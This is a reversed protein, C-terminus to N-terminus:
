NNDKLLNVFMSAISYMGFKFINLHVEFLIVSSGDTDVNAHKVINSSNQIFRLLNILKCSVINAKVAAALKFFSTRHLFGHQLVLM